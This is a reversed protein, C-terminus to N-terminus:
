KAKVPAREAVAPCPHEEDPTAGLKLCWFPVAGLLCEDRGCTLRAREENARELACPDCLGDMTQDVPAYRFIIGGCRVCTITM